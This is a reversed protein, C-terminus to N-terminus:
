KDERKVGKQICLPKKKIPLIQIIALSCISVIAIDSLNFSLYLFSIYDCVGNFLFRSITNGMGLITLSFLLYSLENNILIALTILVLLLVINIEYINSVTLGFAIGHNFICLGKRNLFFSLILDILLVVLSLPPLYKIYKM